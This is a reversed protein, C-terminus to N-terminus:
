EEEVRIRTPPVVSEKIGLTDIRKAIESQKSMEIMAAQTSIHEFQLEKMESKTKNIKRIMGEAVYNNAIMVIGLGALLLLFPMAKMTEDRSLLSGDLLHKIKFKNKAM